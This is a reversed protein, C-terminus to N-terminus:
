GRAALWELQRWLQVEDGGEHGSYPWEIIAKDGGCANYAAFVTSPPCITDMIGVSWLTPCTIRRAFAVGDFYALTAFAREARHPHVRLWEEIEPYPGESALGVAREFHCLFPVDVMAGAVQVGVRDALAATALTMAGGQSGGVLFVRDPDTLEHAAAVSAFRVCDTFLRRYFYDAPANLGRTMFGPRGNDGAAADPDPTLDFLSRSWWSQGRTDLIFYAYGAQAFVTDVPMGRGGSYGHFRVVTPLPGSAGAPAILWAKIPAGGFGTFTLDYTDVLTLPSDLRVQQVSLEPQETLTADWFQDFNGPEAVDPAYSRLDNLALDFFPM